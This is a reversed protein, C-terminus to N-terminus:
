RFAPHRHGQIGASAVSKRARFGDDDRVTPGGHDQGTGRLAASGVPIGAESLLSDVAGLGGAKSGNRARIWVGGRTDHPTRKASFRTGRPGPIPLRHAREVENFSNRWFAKRCRAFMRTPTM